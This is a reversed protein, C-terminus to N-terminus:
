WPACRVAPVAALILGVEPLGAHRLVLGQDHLPDIEYAKAVSRPLLGGPQVGAAKLQQTLYAVTKTEGATAPGRGEYADSSLIQTVTTLTSPSIQPPAVAVAPMPREAPQACAALAAVALFPSLRAHLRM